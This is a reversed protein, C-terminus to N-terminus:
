DIPKGRLRSLGILGLILLLLATPESIGTADGATSGTSMTNNNKTTAGASNGWNAATAADCAKPDLDCNALNESISLSEPGNDLASIMVNYNELGSGSRAFDRSDFEYSGNTITIAQAVSLKAPSVIGALMLSVLIKTVKTM